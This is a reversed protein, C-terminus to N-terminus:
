LTAARLAKASLVTPAAPVQQNTEDPKRPNMPTQDQGNPVQTKPSLQTPLKFNVSSDFVPHNEVLESKSAAKGGLFLLVFHLLLEASGLELYKYTSAKPM